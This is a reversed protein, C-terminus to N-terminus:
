ELYEEIWGFKYGYKPASLVFQKIKFSNEEEPLIFAELRSGQQQSKTMSQSVHHQLEQEARKSAQEQEKQAIINQQTDIPTATAFSPLVIGALITVALFGFNRRMM